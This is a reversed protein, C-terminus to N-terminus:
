IGEIVAKRLVGLGIIMAVIQLVLALRCETADAPNAPEFDEESDDMRGSYGPAPRVFVAGDSDTTPSFFTNEAGAPM